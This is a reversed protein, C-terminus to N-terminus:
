SMNESASCSPLPELHIVEDCAPLEPVRVNRAPVERRVASRGRVRCIVALRRHGCERIINQRIIMGYMMNYVVWLRAISYQILGGLSQTPLENWLISQLLWLSKSKRGRANRMKANVAEDECTTRSRPLCHIHSSLRMTKRRAPKSRRRPFPV